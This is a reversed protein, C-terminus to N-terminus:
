SKKKRSKRKKPDNRKKLRSKIEEMALKALEVVIGGIIQNYDVLGENNM